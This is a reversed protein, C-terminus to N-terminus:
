ENIYKEIAKKWILYAKGNLHLGDSTLDERLKGEPNVMLTFLDIYPLQYEKAIMKIEKNLELIEASKNVHNAFRTYKDNVPLVSQIYILTNPSKQQITDIIKRYNTTIYNTNLNKAIDNVGIMIFIKDPYSEVVEDLRYLVGDTIDASIGRNKIKINGFM